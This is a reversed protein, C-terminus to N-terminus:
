IGDLLLQFDRAGWSSRTWGDTTKPPFRGSASLPLPENSGSHTSRRSPLYDPVLRFPHAIVNSLSGVRARNRHGGIARRCQVKSGGAEIWGRGREVEGRCGRPGSRQRRTGNLRPLSRASSGLRVRQIILRSGSEAARSYSRLSATDVSRLAPTAGSHAPHFRPFFAAPFPSRNRFM